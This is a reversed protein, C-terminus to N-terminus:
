ILNGLCHCSLGCTAVSNFTPLIFIHSKLHVILPLPPLFPFQYVQMPLGGIFVSELPHVLVSKTSCIILIIM